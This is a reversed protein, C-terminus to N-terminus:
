PAGANANEKNNEFSRPKLTRDSRSKYGPSSSMSINRNTNLRRNVKKKMQSM